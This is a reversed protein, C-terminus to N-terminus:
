HVKENKDIRNLHEELIKRVKRAPSLPDTGYLLFITEGETFNLEKVCDLPDKVYRINEERVGASLLRLKFDLGRSGTTVITKIRDDALLEFDADYLWCMNESWTADDQFNNNFLLLEKDGPQAEIYEFVRSSAYANRDKCLVSSLKIGGAEFENLREKTIHVSGVAEKIEDVKYNLESLTAILTLENYINFIGNNFLNFKCNEGELFVNMTMSDINVDTALYDATFSKFNCNPCYARGINSYRNKTYMLKSSCVPCIPCDDILNTCCNKDSDLSEIGFYVKSNDPCMLSSILDDANLILRTSKDINAELISRMYEPHGNRMISDRSLNTVVLYDIHIFPFIRRSSIEDVEFVAKDYSQKGALNVSNILSTTIGTITNSGASNNLVKEGLFTLADNLLNSCTTKGNTGTIGIIKDPLEIYELFNPCIRIAVIGPFNTGNHRTIKLAIISLKAILLACFFRLKGM